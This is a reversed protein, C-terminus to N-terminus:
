LSRPDVEKFRTITVTEFLGARAYPDSAVLSDMAQRTPLDVVLLSGIMREGDDSLLPGVFHIAAKHEALFALHAPRNEKRIEESGKKDKAYLAFLM